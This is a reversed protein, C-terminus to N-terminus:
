LTCVQENMEDIIEQDFSDLYIETIRNGFSHGLAESILDKSYGMKKAITAWSHRSVYSTLEQGLGLDEGIRKLYKNCTKIAQHIAAREQTPNKAIEDTIVPLVRTRDKHMYVDLIQQATETLKINYLKHTKRRKYMLRGKVIDEKRISFMDAFSIGRLNFSLIFYNRAHWIPTNPALQLNHIAKMDQRDINRKATREYKIKYHRYPYFKLDIISANIAKNFIARLSRNYASISNRKLGAKLMKNEIICLFEFNVERFELQAKGSYKKLANLADTYASANGIRNAAKMEDIIKEGYSIFDHKVTPKVVTEKIKDATIFDDSIELNLKTKEVELVTQRIKQNLLKENPHNRKVKQAKSDFQSEQIPSKLNISTFDDGNYIRIVLPYSGDKRQRRKDLLVKYTAM